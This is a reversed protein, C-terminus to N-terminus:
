DLCFHSITGELRSILHSQIFKGNIRGSGEPISSQAIEEALSVLAQIELELVAPKSKFNVLADETVYLQRKLCRNQQNAESLKKVLKQRESDTLLSRLEERSLPQSLIKERSEESDDENEGDSYFNESNLPPSEEVSFAMSYTKMRIRYKCTSARYSHVLFLIVLSRPVAFSTSIPNSLFCSSM